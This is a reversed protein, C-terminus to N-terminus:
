NILINFKNYNSKSVSQNTLSLVGVSNNGLAFKGLNGISSNKKLSNKNKEIEYRFCNFNSSNTLFYEYINDSDIEIIDTLILKKNVSNKRLSYFVDLYKGVILNENQLSNVFHQFTDFNKYTFRQNLFSSNVLLSFDISNLTKILQEEPLIKLNSDLDFLNKRIVLNDMKSLYIRYKKWNLLKDFEPIQYKNCTL